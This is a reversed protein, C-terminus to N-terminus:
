GKLDKKIQTLTTILVPVDEQLTKYIEEADVNFYQHVIIDRLGMAQKWNIQSYHPLFSKNTIKDLNKITEGIAALKMCVSDLLIMGSESSTFDDPSQIADTRKRVTELNDIMLCVLYYALNRDFM